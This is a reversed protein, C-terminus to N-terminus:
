QVMAPQKLSKWKTKGRYVKLGRVFDAIKKECEDCITFSRWKSGMTIKRRWPLKVDLTLPKEYENVGCLDCKYKSTRDEM